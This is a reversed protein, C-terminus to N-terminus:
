DQDRVGGHAPKDADEQEAIYFNVANVHTIGNPGGV